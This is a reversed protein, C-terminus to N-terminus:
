DTGGVAAARGHLYIREDFRLDVYDIGDFRDQLTDRLEFYRRTRAAFADRGLHLWAPDGDFLVRADRANSVDVHSLRQVMGPEQEFAAILAATLELREPDVLPRDGRPTPAILGDVIPLDLDRHATGYEDIVVGADDVVYLRQDLRALAMPTREVVHIEVTAPLVRFLAVDAVWPSALVRRGYADLDLHFISEGRLGEVLAQVQDAPLREHGRVVVAKVRLADAGALASGGWALLGAVVLAPLGWRLLRRALRALRRRRDLPWHARRFRRDAPAAIGPTRPLGRRGRGNM